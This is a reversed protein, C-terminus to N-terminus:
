QPPQEKLLLPTEETKLVGPHASAIQGDITLDEDIAPWHVGYGSPSISYSRRGADTANALRTSISLLDVHYVQGDVNLVM